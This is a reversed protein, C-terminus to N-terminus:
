FESLDLGLGKRPKKKIFEPTISPNKSLYIWNWEIEPHNEVFEPTAFRSFEKIHNKGFMKYIQKVREEFDSDCKKWFDKRRRNM